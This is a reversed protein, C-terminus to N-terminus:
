RNARRLKLPLYRKGCHETEGLPEYAAWVAERKWLPSCLPLKELL